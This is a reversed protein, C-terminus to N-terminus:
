RKPLSLDSENYENTILVAPTVDIERPEEAQELTKLMEGYVATFLIVGLAGYLVLTQYKKSIFRRISVWMIKALLFGTMIVALTTIFTTM